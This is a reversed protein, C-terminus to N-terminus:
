ICVINKGKRKAEYLKKDVSELFEKLEEKSSFNYDNIGISLGVNFTIEDNFIFEHECFDLKIKECVKRAQNKDANKFIVALEDGGVRFGIDSGRTNHKIVAGIKELVKDGSYHGYSDNILKFDDLDIYAVSICFNEDRKAMLIEKELFDEFLDKRYLQTLSDVKMEDIVKNAYEITLANNMMLTLKYISLLSTYLPLIELYEEKNLFYFLNQTNISIRQELDEFFKRKSPPLSKSQELWDEVMSSEDLDLTENKEIAELMKKLWKIKDITISSAVSKDDLQNHEFFLDIDKKDEKLMRNLYGKATFGKMIKFYKFIDNILEISHEVKQTNLLFHEELIETGKIFDVYPIRLDYHYEGIKIYTAKLSETDMSLSMSFYTKQKEILAKVQEENEFFVSLRVDNLMTNYFAQFADDIHDVLKTLSSFHKM